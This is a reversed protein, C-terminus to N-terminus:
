KLRYVQVSLLSFRVIINHSQIHLVTGLISICNINFYVRPVGFM